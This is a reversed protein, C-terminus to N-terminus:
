VRLFTDPSCSICEPYLVALALRVQYILLNADRCVLASNMVENLYMTVKYSAAAAAAAAAGFAAGFCALASVTCCQQALHACCRPALM